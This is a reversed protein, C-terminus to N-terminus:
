KPQLLAKYDQASMLSSVVSAPDNLKLQIIWGAGYPDSNVLEPNTDLAKNTMIVLGSVPLFLESTTKVAEITGFVANSELTDGVTEVEVYVIDGLADQAFDTIGIYATGDAELRLWEHEATYLLNDPINM